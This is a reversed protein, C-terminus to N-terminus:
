DPRQKEDVQRVMDAMELAEPTALETLGSIVGLRDFSSRNQSTKWKGEMSTIQIEIGVIAKTLANVYDQPASEVTWPEAFPKENRNTIERLHALLEDDGMARGRGKVHVTVYNWTPVVKGHETTSPYWNPTIYHEPGAFIALVPASSAVSKWHSNKRALHCRLAGYGAVERHWIVPVHTAEPGDEGCTTLIALPHEEIFKALVDPRNEVFHSPNYM